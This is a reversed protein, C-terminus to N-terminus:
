EKAVEPEGIRQWLALGGGRGRAAVVDGDALVIKFFPNTKRTSSKTSTIKGQGDTAKEEAAKTAEWDSVSVERSWPGFPGLSLSVRTFTFELLRRQDDWKFPGDFFFSIPGAYIGNRIRMSSADFSQEARVPFYSGDGKRNVNASVQTRWQPFTLDHPRVRAVIDYQEFPILPVPRAHRTPAPWM